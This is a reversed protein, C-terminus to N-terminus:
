MEADTGIHSRSLWRGENRRHVPGHRRRGRHGSGGDSDFRLGAPPPARRHRRVQEVWPHGPREDGHAAYRQSQRRLQRHHGACRPWRADHGLPHHVQNSGRDVYDWRTYLHARKPGRQAAVRQYRPPQDARHGTGDANMVHLTYVPMPRPHCRGYGGRRDSVFVIRGDPLWTPDFDNNSGQTLQTLGTGDVNVKFIHHVTNETWTVRQGSNDTYAFVIQKADYSLDPSLFGGGQLKKGDHPGSTCTSNALVNTATPRGSLVNQLIYLGGGPLDNFGHVSRLHPRRHRQRRQPHLRAQHLPDQGPQRARSGHPRPQEQGHNCCSKPGSQWRQLLLTRPPSCMWM